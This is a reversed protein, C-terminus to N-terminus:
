RRIIELFKAWGLSVLGMFVIAVLSCGILAVKDWFYDRSGVETTKRNNACLQLTVGPLLEEIREKSVQKLLEEESCRLKLRRVVEDQSKCVALFANVAVMKAEDPDSDFFWFRGADVPYGLRWYVDGLKSRLSFDQPYENVLGQLRDRAIGLKGESIEREIRALTANRPV